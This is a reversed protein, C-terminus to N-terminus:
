ELVRQMFSSFEARTTPKSPKFTGDEYGGTIKNAALTSIAERAWHDADVDKFVIETEGKLKYARNLVVAMEARTLPEDPAFTEATKGKIIGAEAVAKIANFAYHSEKVDTFPLTQDAAATLGLERTIMAAAMARTIQADPRFTEDEYGRIIGRNTLFAVSKFAWHSSSIDKFSVSLEVYNDVYVSQLKDFYLTGKNQKEKVAEAVYIRDVKLPLPLDSPVQARVYKWGTWNLEGEETFNITYKEGNGDIINGRLWHGAGDGYVWLGLEKPNGQIAIPTKAVAYAAKIGEEKTTFDYALQISSKGDKVPEGNASIQITANARSQDVSWKAINEFGDILIPDAGVKVPIEAKIDEYSAVISGEAKEGGATFLGDATITGINGKVSWEILSRDFLLTEGNNNIADGTLQISENVGIVVSKPKIDIKDFSDVVTVPVEGYANNYRAIVKGQGAKEAIFTLGNMEGVNGEVSLSLDDPKVAVPNMYEDIAYEFTVNVETGKLIKGAPKTLKLTKAESTPAISIVQLISSVARERGDSPRNVLTPQANGPQRVVMASSGGGDLNIANYAGISVLYNALDRISVGNSYGPQRGDITVLFVQDGEKNTAIATRPNRGKAFSVSEDMSISVQGNKVLLPGTGIMYKADQWVEGVNLQFEVSDGEQIAKLKENWEQGHASIVVGDAPIVANGGEGFRTIKSVTGTMKQGVYLERPTPTVGTVIIETGWENTGTMQNAGTYLVVSGDTRTTNLKTIQQSIDGIKTDITLNYQDIVAKGNRDVGFAIPANVPSKRELGTIGLNILKNDKVLLNIPYKSSTDFFGANTAGVVFQGERNNQIAHKSVTTTNNLPNPIGVDLLTFPDNLNINLVRVKQKLDLEEYSQNMFMVGPSVQTIEEDVKTGFIADTAAFAAMNGFSQFVLLISLIIAIMNRKM